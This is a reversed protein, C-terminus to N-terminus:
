IYTWTINGGIAGSDILTQLDTYGSIDIDQSVEVLIDQAEAGLPIWNSFHEDDQKQKVQTIRYRM